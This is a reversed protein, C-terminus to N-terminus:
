ALAPEAVRSQARVQCSGPQHQQHEDIVARANDVCRGCCAGVPLQMQVEGLTQAGQEVARYIQRDTIAHCVCVYM